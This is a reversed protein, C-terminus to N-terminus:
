KCQLAEKINQVNQYQISLYSKGMDIENQPIGEIPDLVKTKANTEQAITEAIKPSVLTEFFIVSINNKKVTEALEAIKKPSPEEEPDIGLISLVKWHYKNALYSFAQHSVVLTNEKCQAFTSDMMTSLDILKKTYAEKNAEYIMANQPDISQLAQNIVAVEKVAMEPNLWIHPDKANEIQLAQAMNITIVGHKQAEKAVNDAWSEFSAGNYIFLKSSLIKEIDQPTPEYDHPEAGAPTINQVIVTDKGVENAFEWLPYFSTTIQLTQIENRARDNEQKKYFFILISSVLLLVTGM